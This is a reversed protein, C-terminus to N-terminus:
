PVLDNEADIGVRPVILFGIVPEVPKKLIIELFKERLFVGDQRQILIEAIGLRRGVRLVLVDGLDVVEFPQFRLREFRYAVRQM